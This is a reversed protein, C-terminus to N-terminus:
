RKEWISIIAQEAVGRATILDTGYEIVLQKAIREQTSVLARYWLLQAKEEMTLSTVQKAESMLSRRGVWSRVLPGCKPVGWAEGSFIHTM